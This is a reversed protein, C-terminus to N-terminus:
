LATMIASMILRGCVANHVNNGNYSDNFLMNRHLCVNGAMSLMRRPTARRCCKALMTLKIARQDGRGGCANNYAPVM